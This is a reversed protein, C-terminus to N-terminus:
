GKGSRLNERFEGVYHGVGGSFLDKHYSYSGSGHMRGREWDGEYIMKSRDPTMLTGKGHQLEM